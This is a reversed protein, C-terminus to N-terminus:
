ARHALGAAALLRGWTTSDIVINVLPECGIVDGEHAGAARFIKVLADHRRQAPTRPLDLEDALDGHRARREACDSEFEAQEFRAFIEVIEATELPDGGFARVHLTGAVNTVTASRNVIADDRDDHAGDEDAQTEFHEVSAAFDKYTLHEANHLLLHTFEPLKATVRPNANLKALRQAQPMGFHGAMWGDGLGDVHDIAKSLQIFRGAEQNSWNFNARMWASMSSHGDVSCVHRRTAIALLMAMEADSRRRELELERLRDVVDSDPRGIWEDVAASFM